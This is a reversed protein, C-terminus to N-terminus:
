GDEGRRAALLAAENVLNALDAGVMGPTAAALADLDVDPALPVTRTHVALIQRWGRQDPASVTVRRDFRGPRDPDRGPDEQARPEQVLEDLRVEPQEAGRRVPAADREEGVDAPEDEAQRRCPEQDPGSPGRGGLSSAGHGLAPSM